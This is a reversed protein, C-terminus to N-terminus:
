LRMRTDGRYVLVMVTYIRIDIIAILIVIIVISSQRHYFDDLRYEVVITGAVAVGVRVRVEVPAGYVTGMFEFEGQGFWV